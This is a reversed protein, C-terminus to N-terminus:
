QSQPRDAAKRVAAVLNEIPGDKVLYDVAGAALMQAAMDDGGHMSLGIVRVGPLEATIRRTAEIGDMRPMTVDMLVVQPRLRHALEVAEHGDRADGVVTLEQEKQLLEVLGKRVVTHDDAVLVRIAGPVARVAVPPASVPPASVSPAAVQPAPTAAPLPVRLTIRTGQGPASDIHLRGGVFAIRERINFLGFSHHASERDLVAADFGVGQDAVVIQLTRDEERTVTVHARKVGAHKVINFLLERVAQFCMLRTEVPLPIPSDEAQVEVVFDHKERMWRTLWALGAVLGADHLVPPSLEATLSRSADISQGLLDLIREAESKLEPAAARQRLSSASFKAAVLLQQLHDHLLTALRKKEREETLSLEAALARLQTARRELEATREGVRRELTANLDRLADEARKRDTIDQVTGRLGVIRGGADRVAESRTTIWIPQGNRFAPVDLEYGVGTQVTKQVAANVTLWSEHPYLWGDQENFAPMPQKAPDLGYIRLLEDTGTTADTTADWYWSGIHAVRQADTLEVETRRLAEEARKRDTIDVLVNVAGSPRGHEDFLPTAHGLVRRVEGDDFVVSFEFDEVPEGKAARRIPLEDTRLERGDKMTKLHRMGAPATLSVEDGRPIRLLADGARNGSIHRCEPDHAIYIAMPAAELLAALEGARERERAESERLAEEARKRDTIDRSFSTVAAVRGEDDCVPYFTHEFSMGAREDDFHVPRGTQAVEQLRALRSQALEPAMIEFFAKGILEDAPVGVRAAAMENAALVAGGPSMLWISEKTADLISRLRAESERLAADKRNVSRASAWMLGTLLITYALAVLVVGVESVFLESREGRIRLWGIVVPIVVVAPLLRRAMASGAHEGTFVSMLWTDPRICFAALGVACFALGTNMAMPVDLWGHLSQVGLVYSIPVLYGVVAGPLAVAHAIAAARRDGTALLIMVCGFTVFLIATLLAMRDLPAVFLNLVPANVLVAENGESLRFAYVAITTLGVFSVVAGLIGSAIRRRRNPSAQHILALAAASFALCIATIVRMSIWQPRVSKLLPIDLLGGVLALSCIAFVCVISLRAASKASLPLVSSCRRPM